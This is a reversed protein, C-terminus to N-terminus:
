EHEWPDPPGDFDITDYQPPEVPTISRTSKAGRIFQLLHRDWVYLRGRIKQAPIMGRKIYSRMTRESVGIEAAAEKLRYLVTREGGIRSQIPM